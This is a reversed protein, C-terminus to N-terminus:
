GSGATQRGDEGIGVVSEVRKRLILQLLDGCNPAQISSRDVKIQCRIDYIKYDKSLAQVDKLCFSALNFGGQAFDLTQLTIGTLPDIM